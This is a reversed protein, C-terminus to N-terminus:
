MNPFFYKIFSFKDTGKYVVNHQQLFTLIPEYNRLSYNSLLIKKGSQRYILVSPYRSFRTKITFTTYYSVDALLIQRYGPFMTKIKILAQQEDIEVRIPLLVLCLILYLCLSFLLTVAIGMLILLLINDRIAAPHKYASNGIAVFGALLFIANLGDGMIFNLNARIKM